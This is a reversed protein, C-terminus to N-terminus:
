QAVRVHVVAVSDAFLRRWGALSDLVPVAAARPPLLTWGIRYQVMLRELSEKAGRDTAEHVQRIFDSPYMDGRGDILVPVRRYILFGGFSYDNLVPADIKALRVAELAAEPTIGAAPRDPIRGREVFMVAAVVVSLLLVGVGRMPRALTAVAGDVTTSALDSAQKRARAFGLALPTALLFPTVLGVQTQHRQHKFALYVLALLLVLRPLRLRVRRTLVLGLLLACWVLFVSPERLSTVKWEDLVSLTDDLGTIGLVHGILSAGRPNLLLAGASAVLFLAWRRALSRQLASDDSTALWAEIALLGAIGGGLVFSGHLNIWAVLLALLWWPPPRRAEVAQVLTGVWVVTIPWALVHPRALFHIYMLAVSITALGIAYVAEMRDLLFRLIYAASAAYTVAALLQVGRWGAAAHAGYLLLDGGWEYATWSTGPVSYSFVDTTPVARHEVIWRGVAVHWYTDGDVLVTTSFAAAFLVGVGLLAPWSVVSRDRVPSNTM